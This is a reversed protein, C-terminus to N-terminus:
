ICRLCATQCVKDGGNGSSSPTFPRVRKTSSPNDGRDSTAFINYKSDYPPQYPTKMASSTTLECYKNPACCQWYRLLESCPKKMAILDIKHTMSYYDCGSCTKVFSFGQELAELFTLTKNTGVRTVRKSTNSM